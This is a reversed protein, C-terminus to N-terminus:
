VVLVKDIRDFKFNKLLIELKVLSSKINYYTIFSSLLSLKIKPTEKFCEWPHVYIIFPRKKNILKLLRLQMGIPILRLFFGGSIPFRLKWFEFATIPFEKLNSGADPVNINNGSIGYIDLPVDNIGYFFNKVPFISSDYKIQLKKLIDIAWSTNKGLSFSPARFGNIEVNNGLIGRLINKCEALEYQLGEPGIDHLQSHKLGHISIEHSEEYIRKILRPNDKAVNGVVFFTAKSNYKRLLNLLVDTAKEVLSNKATPANKLLDPQYWEELDISLANTREEFNDM